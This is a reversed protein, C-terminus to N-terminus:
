DDHVARIGALVVDIIQEADARTFSERGRRRFLHVPGSILDTFFHIEVPPLEGSTVANEMRRRLPALRREHVTDMIARM